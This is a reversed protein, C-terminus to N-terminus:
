PEVTSWRRATAPGFSCPPGWGVARMKFSLDRPLALLITLGLGEVGFGWFGLVGFGWFGLVGFGWFGLVGFGLARM